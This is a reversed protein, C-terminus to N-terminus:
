PIGERAFLTASEPHVANSFINRRFLHFPSVQGPQM